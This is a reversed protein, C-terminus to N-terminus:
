PMGTTGVRVAASARAAAARRQRRQRSRYRQLDQRGVDDVFGVDAPDHEVQPRRARHPVGGFRHQLAHAAVKGIRADLPKGHLRHDLPRVGELQDDADGLIRLEARHNQEALAARCGLDDVVRASASGGSFM